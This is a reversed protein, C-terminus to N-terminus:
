VFIYFVPFCILHITIFFKDGVNLVITRLMSSMRGLCQPYEDWINPVITRFM